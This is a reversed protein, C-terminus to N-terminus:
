PLDLIFVTTDANGTALQRDDPSFTLSKVFAGGEQGPGRMNWSRLETGSALDWLKIVDDTGVTVFRKGDTSVQCIRVEGSHAKITKLTERKAVLCIKVEGAASGALLKSGDPTLALDGMAVGKEYLFWHGGPLLAGKKELDFVRVSGDLAGTAAWKGDASFAMSYVARDNVAFLETGTALEFASLLTSAIEERSEFTLLKKGDPAVVFYNVPGTMATFSHQQGPVRPWQKGSGVDWVRISRDESSSVLTKGDPAFMLCHIGDTHGNLTARELGTDRDWVKITTDSAGTAILKGDPSFAVAGVFGAHEALLPIEKSTIEWIKILRDVGSSVVYYGDKSFAVSTVWDRHGRYTQAEKGAGNEIKWLKVTQDSGASVLHRSDARFAVASLPGNHGVLTIAKQGPTACPWVRVLQDAGCSALWQGSPSYSLGTVAIAHAPWRAQQKGTAADLLRITQDVNGVAIQKGDPSFAVAAVISNNDHATLLAQASATDWVKVTKDASGSVFKKGDRSYDLATITGTHGKYTRLLRGTEADWGKILSDGAGSLVTKGDPSFLAVTVASDHGPLTHLTKGTAVDWIRITRDASASVVRQGSPSLTSTWVAGQHGAFDRSHVVVDFTWLRITHDSSASALQNLAPHFALARVEGGHAKFAGTLQGTEADWLNIMGDATGTYLTKSDRGFVACTYGNPKPLPAIARRPSGVQFPTGPLVLNYLKIGDDGLRALTRNDPSFAVVTAGDADQQSWYDPQSLNDVLAPYQWLRVLGDGVGVGLISGSANFAVCHVAKRFDTIARKPKGSATEYVTVMGPQLATTGAEGALLHKGDRAFVLSTTFAGEGKITVLDKGTAADWIRIGKDAGASAVSKGDPSFAVCRVGDAHGAYALIEHGNDLDWIKVTQDSGASALRTGDPSFTIAHIGGAHRLRMNGLIRVVHGPVQPAQYPLQWRAQRFAEGAEVFRGAKLAAEGRRAIADAKDLLLPPFRKDIGEKLVQGREAQFKAALAKIAETTPANAEEAAVFPGSWLM